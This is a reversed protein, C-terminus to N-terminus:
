WTVYLSSFYYRLAWTWIVTCRPHADKQHIYLCEAVTYLANTRVIISIVKTFSRWCNYKLPIVMRLSWARQYVFITKSRLWHGTVMIIWRGVIIMYIRSWDISLWDAALVVLKSIMDPLSITVNTIPSHATNAAPRKTGNLPLHDGHPAHLTVHPWVGPTRDRCRSHLQLHRVLTLPPHRIGFLSSFLRHELLM